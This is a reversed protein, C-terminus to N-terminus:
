NTIDEIMKKIQELGSQYLQWLQPSVDSELKAFEGDSERLFDRFRDAYEASTKIFVKREFYETILSFWELRSLVLIDSRQGEQGSHRRYFSLPEKYILLDGKEMLELWMAVDSIVKYGRVDANWYHHKLDRRRFLAASPEGVFNKGYLLARGTDEGSFIGFERGTIPLLQRKFHEPHLNGASDIIGRQSSVLTIEPHNMLCVAMKEVKNPLLIDDHMLWQLYEGRALKEFPRFNEAKTKAARNRIYRVRSDKAYHKMLKETDDNTSNDMVIIEVKPWTQRAASAMTEAFIDPANCTPIMISVLPRKM